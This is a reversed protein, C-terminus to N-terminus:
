RPFFYRDYTSQLYSIASEIARQKAAYLRLYSKRYFGRLTKDIGQM